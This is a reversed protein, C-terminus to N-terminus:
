DEPEENDAAPVLTGFLGDAEKNIGATFFLTTSPSAAADNGFALAWLGPLVVPQENEHRLTGMRRGSVPDFANILGDGFNGVLLDNSFRVFNAPAM